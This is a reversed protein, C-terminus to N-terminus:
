ASEAGYPLHIIRTAGYDGDAERHEDDQDPGRRRQCGGLWSQCGRGAEGNQAVLKVM